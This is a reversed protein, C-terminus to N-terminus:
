IFAGYKLVTLAHRLSKDCGSSKELLQQLFNKQAENGTLNRAQPETESQWKVEKFDGLRQVLASVIDM